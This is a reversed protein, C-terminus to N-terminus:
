IVVIKLMLWRTKNKNLGELNLIVSKVHLKASNLQDKDGNTVFKVLPDTLDYKYFCKLASKVPGEFSEKNFVDINTLDTIRSILVRRFISTVPMCLTRLIFMIKASAIIPDITIWGVTACNAPNPTNQPVYQVFRSFNRHADELIMISNENIPCVELGYLMKPIAVSWYINSLSKPTVPIYNSGLGNAAYM